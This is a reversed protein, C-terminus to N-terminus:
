PGMPDFVTSSTGDGYGDGATTNHYANQAAMVSAAHRKADDQMARAAIVLHQEDVPAGMGANDARKMLEVFQEESVQIGQRQLAEKLQAGKQERVPDPQFSTSGDSGLGGMWQPVGHSNWRAAPSPPQIMPQGYQQRGMYQGRHARIAQIMNPDMRIKMGPKQVPHENGMADKEMVWQGPVESMGTAPDFTSELIGPHAGYMSNVGTMWSNDAKLREPESNQYRLDRMSIGGGMNDAQLDEGLSNGYAQQYVQNRSQDNPLGMFSPDQLITRGATGAAYNGSQRNLYDRAAKSKAAMFQRQAMDEDGLDSDPSAHPVDQGNVQYHGLVNSYSPQQPSYRQVLSQAALQRPDPLSAVRQQEVAQNQDAAYTNWDHQFDDRPDYM